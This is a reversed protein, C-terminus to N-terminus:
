LKQKMLNGDLLKLAKKLSTIAQPYFRKRLQVSALEYLESAEKSTATGKKELRILNTEDKRVRLLQRAVLIAFILLLGILGILYTEPQLLNM